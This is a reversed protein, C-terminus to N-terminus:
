LSCISKKKWTDLTTRAQALEKSTKADGAIAHKTHSAM